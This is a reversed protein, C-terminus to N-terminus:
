KSHFTAGSPSNHRIAADSQSYLIGSESLVSGFQTSAESKSVHGHKRCYHLPLRRLRATLIETTPLLSTGLSQRCFYVCYKLARKLKTILLMLRCSESLPLVVTQLSIVAVVLLGM